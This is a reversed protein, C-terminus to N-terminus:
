SISGECILLRVRASYQFVTSYDLTLIKSKYVALAAKQTLMPRLRSLSYLKYSVTSILANLMGDFRLRSDILFGLYKYSDVYHLPHTHVLFNSFMPTRDRLFFVLAKTKKNNLTLKNM